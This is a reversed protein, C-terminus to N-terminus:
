IVARPLRPIALSLLAAAILPIALASLAADLTMLDAAIGIISIGLGGAGVSFGILLGSALGVRDPLYEQAMTVTVSFTSWTLFGILVMLSLRVWGTTMFFLMYPIISAFLGIITVERRGYRDSLIGGTVQGVVGALLMMTLMMNAFILSYGSTLILYTPFFATSALIVWSRLAAITVILTIPGYSIKQKLKKVTERPVQFAAGKTMHYLYAATLLGPISILTLATLGGFGILIGVIVPGIAYGLNGGTVFISTLSGRNHVTTEGHVRLLASPHFLAHSVGAVAAFILLLYYDQVVGYLGICISSTLICLWIPAGWGSRDSLWGVVPQILSSTIQFVSVLLGALFFGIGPHLVLLPILAPIVPSYLDIVVHGFTYGLLPRPLKIM